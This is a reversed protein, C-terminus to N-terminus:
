CLEPTSVGCPDNLLILDTVNLEVVALLFHLGVSEWAMLHGKVISCLTLWRIASLTLSSMYGFNDPGNPIPPFPLGFFNTPRKVKVRYHSKLLAKLLGDLRRWHNGKVSPSQHSDVINDPDSVVRFQVSIGGGKRRGRRRHWRGVCRSRRVLNLPAKPFFVIPTTRLFFRKKKCM